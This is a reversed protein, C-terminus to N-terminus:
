QKSDATWKKKLFANLLLSFLIMATGIYFQLNMKEDGGFIFYALIIGYVVELNVTLNVTYPSIYKLLNTSILFTFATGVTSFLLLLLFNRLTLNSDLSNLEGMFFMVITLIFFGFSLEYLSMTRPDNNKVLISNLITFLAAGMAGVISLLAGTNFKANINLILAIAAIAIISCVIEIWSIKRKFFIPELLATFLANTSFCALTISINSAKIAGYFCIWHFAILSGVATFKLLEKKSVRLPIQAILIYVLLSVFAILMRFWVLHTTPITIARGFIPAFGWIGVIFHLLFFHKRNTQQTM